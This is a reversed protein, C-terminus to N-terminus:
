EHAVVSVEESFASFEAEPPGPDLTQYRMIEFRM